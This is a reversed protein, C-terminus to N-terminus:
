GPAATIHLTGLDGGGLAASAVQRVSLRALKGECLGTM